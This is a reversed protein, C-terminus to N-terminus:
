FAELVAILAAGAILLLAQLARSRPPARHIGPILDAAAVYLFGACAVALVYPTAPRVWDLVLAAALAGVVAVSNAAINYGFAKKPSFGGELLLAVNGVEQPVEHAFVAVATGVGAEKSVAFAAAIAVGDVFNHLADGFLVLAGLAHHEEGEHGQAHGHGHRHALALELLMFGLMGGLVLLSVTKVKAGALAEPLLDVFAAGLLAGASFAVLWPLAQQRREKPLMLVGGALVASGLGAVVAAGLIWM